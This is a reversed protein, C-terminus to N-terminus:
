IPRFNFFFYYVFIKKRKKFKKRKTRPLEFTNRVVQVSPGGYVYCITPYTKTPDFNDPRYLFGYIDDGNQNKFSFLEASSKQGDASIKSKKSVSISSSTSSMSSSMLFALGHRNQTLRSKQIIQTPTDCFRQLESLVKDVSPSTALTKIDYFYDFVPPNALEHALETGGKVKYIM